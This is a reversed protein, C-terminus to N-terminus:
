PPQPRARLVRQMRADSKRYTVDSSTNHAAELRAEVQDARRQLASLRVFLHRRLVGNQETLGEKQEHTAKAPHIRYILGGVL